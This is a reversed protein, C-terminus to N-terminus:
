TIIVAIHVWSYVSQQGILHFYGAKFRIIFPDRLLVILSLRIKEILIRM